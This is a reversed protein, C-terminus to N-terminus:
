RGDLVERVKQILKKFSLPKAIFDFEKDEIGKDLIIDKTYGSTFLVKIYPNKKRIEEYVERGNKKPMVSDIIILDINRHLQYKKIADEGDVAEITNYGYQQLSERIFNRVGEDDEAILITENGATIVATVLPEEHADMKVLPLYIYFTTGHGPESDLSIFGHHQNIIGYATALGLGTGKGIEKTTFFPDFIKERTSKDMGTGTDSIKILVYRGPSGFGNAKIFSKDMDVIHTEIRLIGGQAMADRANTVLNFLIQDIQTKDAMAVTHDDVLSISIEIDETLLRKLLKKTSEIVNNIDLPVLTAPQQRSFTLLSKTLDAAKESASLVQDVYPRLPNEDEMKMQILTAYGMLSTLINNFDHAIGGALTGIAETKQAQRLQSELHRLETIDECTMLYEGSILVSPIFTIIKQTKDKCTVNFVRPKKEGPKVDEMDEVWTSIVSHRYESDPFAKRFWTRGNSIENLDYGFMEKFKPNIYTFHDSDILAMGFPANDSLTKLNEKELLIDKEIKKRNTIDTLFNLTAQKGKWDILIATLEGWRISGDMCVVRFSYPDSVLEGKLRRLHQKMVMDRDEPHVFEIFPRTSLEEITYGTVRATATNVFALKMDQIVFIGELANEVLIRYKEESELLAKESKKRETIDEITGEYYVITGEKNRIARSTLSVWIPNGDKNLLQTEFGKTVESKELLKILNYRDEPEAYLQKSINTINEMLEQPSKYGFLKAMAPNASIFKGEPTTRYIGEMASEFLSRYKEESQRLAEERLTIDRTKERVLTRLRVNWAWVILSLLLLGGVIFSLPLLYGPFAKRGYKTGLWKTRIKQLLGSRKAQHIGKNLIRILFANEKNSAMCNNGIYLPEGVKKIYDTLRNKYIHYLVIQEDGIVADARVEIVMDMAEAFDETDVRNFSINRFELFDRAYDGKQIAVTKGKLDEMNKIDTREAKVFIYAPVTFLTETFEFREKRNESYFLNTIIDAKGSLVAEQAQQFTMNIFAPKFGIEVAMWRVIDPMMGDIQGEEDLFEFPPYRTQSAFIITDKTLLYEREESSLELAFVPSISILLLTLNIYCVSLFQKTKKTIVMGHEKRIFSRGEMVM